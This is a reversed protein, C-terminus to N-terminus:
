NVAPSPGQFELLRYILLNHMRLHMIAIKYIKKISFQLGYYSWCYHIIDLFSLIKLTKLFNGIITSKYMYHFNVLLYQQGLGINKIVM